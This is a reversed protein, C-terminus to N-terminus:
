NIIEPLSGRGVCTGGDIVGVIVGVWVGVRVGVGVFVFVGIVMRNVDVGVLVVFGSSLSIGSFGVFVGVSSGM